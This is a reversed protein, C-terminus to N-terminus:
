TTLNVTASDDHTSDSIAPCPKILSLQKLNYYKLTERQWAHVYSAMMRFRTQVFCKNLRLHLHLYHIIPTCISLCVSKIGTEYFYNM